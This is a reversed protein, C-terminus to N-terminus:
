RAAQESRGPAARREIEAALARFQEGVTHRVALTGLVPLMAQAPEFRAQYVFRTRSGDVATLLYSGEFERLTSREAGVGSPLVSRALVREQPQHTVELWVQVPQVFWFYRFEGAQEVLLRESGGSAVRALVRASRIGPVFQPLREYDTVTLWATRRDAQLEVEARVVFAGADRRVDIEPEAAATAAPALLAFLWCAFRRRM